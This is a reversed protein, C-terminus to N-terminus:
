GRVVHLLRVGDDGVKVKECGVLHEVVLVLCYMLIRFSDMICLVDVVVVSGHCINQSRLPEHFKIRADLKRAPLKGPAGVVSSAVALSFSIKSGTSNNPKDYAARANKKFSKKIKTGREAAALIQATLKKRSFPNNV